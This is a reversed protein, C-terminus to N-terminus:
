LFRVSLLEVPRLQKRPYSAGVPFTISIHLPSILRTLWATRDILNM